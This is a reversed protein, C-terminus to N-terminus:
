LLDELENNLDSLLIPPLLPESFVSIISSSLLFGKNARSLSLDLDGLSLDLDGALDLDGIVLDFDGPSLGFDGASLDLDGPSLYLDGVILESILFLGDTEREM